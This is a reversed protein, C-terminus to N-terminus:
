LRPRVDPPGDIEQVRRVVWSRICEVLAEIQEVTNGAHLCVRVRETGEPVTPSVIGRVVFGHSQCHAALMKPESSLVAFIPSEPCTRPGRLLGELHVPLRLASQMDLLQEHLTQMLLQLNRALPETRGEMLWKYSARVGALAPYSMFTTYIIPRAYNILYKRITPSSLLIAGNCALAKGFTHLRITIDNELGLECVLGRGKLGLVGTSHAEDVIIHGNGNPLLRKVLAVIEALPAVDGDMSYIAEVAVFLNRRGRAIEANGRVCAAIVETLADVSNHTFATTKAARSLRMGDHVSAHIYEDYVIVDGSQPLCSFLGTNADFGSNCLLGSPANHFDAIDQELQEAYTSNGDLLRSGGSGLNLKLAPDSQLEQLFCARLSQSSALSLFDNSSFDVSDPPNTTLRRLTSTTARRELRTTIAEELASSTKM